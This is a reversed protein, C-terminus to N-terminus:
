RGTSVDPIIALIALPLPARQEVRLGGGRSWHPQITVRSKFTKLAIPDYGDSDFRPKIEILDGAYGDSAKPGVWGGRSKEVEIIVESVSVKGGKLSGDNGGSDIDLTEIAPTYRLGAHVTSAARPLTIAGASVTLGKVENGDALVTVDRGELHELGRIIAAPAGSYSLGSDVCFANEPSDTYRVEMREVFRKEGGGVTRRVVCYLADRGEESVTAVSEVFGDTTHQHWGVVQQERQYTLGLLKGDDTACWLIGYPEEAYAMEKITRGEFLHESLLSLDSGTYSDAQFEYGLDRIRSGKEQVYLATNNIVVPPVKSSGNFSQTRVGVTAPTFVQDQGETTKWEAGSTLLLLSDLSLLHRIENVQRAAITFTVADDDRTPRSVRFSKFNAVQTTYVTQPENDTNAFVQRQQYYTVAGPYNGPGDFPQRDGPPADSTIPAINFDVFSLTTSEGIFGYVGSDDSPDKYVRYYEAEPVLQWTVRLGYTQSLSRVTALAEASPLSEVGDEDVATVVYRYSKDFSGAGAGVPVLAGQQTVIAVGSDAFVPEGTTDTSLLEFTTGAGNAVTFFRNNIGPMSPCNQIQITSGNAFTNTTTLTVVAPNANTINSVSKAIGAPQLTPTTVTPAYDIVALSWNDDALRSLNRPEYDRHVLTMVDASQAFAVDGLDDEGYPTALEFPVGATSSTVLDTAGTQDIGDLTFNNADPVSITFWRNNLIEMSPNGSIGFIFVRAGATLGHSTSECRTPNEARIATITPSASDLVLSGGKIVQMTNHGFVLMYTQETNFSFPVLRNKRAHDAADAVYRTGPRSYVGGQPRVIFNECLSLGSYYKALDARSRLSPALEGATFSRQIIQAM